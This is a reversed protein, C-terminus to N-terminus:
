KDYPNPSIGNYGGCLSITGSPTSLILEYEKYNMDSVHGDFYVMNGSGSKVVRGSVMEENSVAHYKGLSDQVTAGPTYISGFLSVSNDWAYWDDADQEYLMFVNYPSPLVLDPKARAKGTKDMLSGPQGNVSYSWIPDPRNPQNPVPWGWVPQGPCHYPNTRPNHKDKNLSPCVYSKSANAYEWIFGWEFCRTLQEVTPNTWGGTDHVSCEDFEIGWCPIANEHDDAYQLTGFGLAKLNTKCVTMRAVDRMRSLAPMLISVLIAIIAIVVLLEVLTFGKSKKM